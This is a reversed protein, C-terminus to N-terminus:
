LGVELVLNLETKVQLAARVQDELNLHLFGDRLLGVLGYIAQRRLQAGLINTVIFHAPGVVRVNEDAINRGILNRLEAVHYVLLLVFAEPVQSGRRAFRVSKQERQTGAGDRRGLFGRHVLRQFGDLAADVGQAQGFGRNLQVAALVVFNQHLEGAFAVRFTSLADNLSTSLQFQHQQHIGCRIRGLRFPQRPMAANQRRSCFEQLFARFRVDALIGVVGTLVPIQYLTWRRHGPAVQAAGRFVAVGIHRSLPLNVEHKRVFGCFAETGEGFLVTAPLHGDDQLM